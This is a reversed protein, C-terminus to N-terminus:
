NFQPSASVSLIFVIIALLTVAALLIDGLIIQGGRQAEPGRRHIM